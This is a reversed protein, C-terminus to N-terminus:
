MHKTHSISSIQWMMDKIVITKLLEHVIIKPSNTM